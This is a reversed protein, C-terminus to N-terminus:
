PSVRLLSRPTRAVPTYGFERDAQDLAENLSMGADHLVRFRTLWRAGHFIDADTVPGAQDHEPCMLDMM